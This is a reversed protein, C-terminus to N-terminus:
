RPLLSAGGSTHAVQGDAAGHVREHRSEVARTRVLSWRSEPHRLFFGIWACALVILAPLTGLYKHNANFVIIWANGTLPHFALHAAIAGGLYGSVLQLGIWRTARNLFLVATVLELGAILFLKENEYGLFRMYDVAKGPHLFKVLSTVALIGGSIFILVNGIRMQKSTFGTM